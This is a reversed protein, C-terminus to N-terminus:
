KVVYKLIIIKAEGNYELRLEGTTTFTPPIYSYKAGKPEEYTDTSVLTKIEEFDSPCRNNKLFYLDCANQMLKLNNFAVTKNTSKTVDVYLFSGLGVLIGLIVVVIILEVLTFAKNRKKLM